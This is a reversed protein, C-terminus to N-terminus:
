GLVMIEGVGRDQGIKSDRALSHAWGQRPRPITQKQLTSDSREGGGGGPTGPAQCNKGRKDKDFLWKKHLEEGTLEEEEILKDQGCNSCQAM